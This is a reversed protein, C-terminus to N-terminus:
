TIAKGFSVGQSSHSGATQPSRARKALFFCANEVRGCARVCARVAVTWGLKEGRPIFLDSM